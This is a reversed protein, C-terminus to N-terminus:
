TTLSSTTVAPSSKIKEIIVEEGLGARSLKLVEDNTMSGVSPSPLRVTTPILGNDPEQPKLPAVPVVPRMTSESLNKPEPLAYHQSVIFCLFERGDALHIGSTGNSSLGFQVASGAQAPNVPIAKLGFVGETFTPLRYPRVVYITTRTRLTVEWYNQMSQQVPTCSSSTSGNANIQGGCNFQPASAISKSQVALITADHWETTVAPKRGALAYAVLLLFSLALKRLSCGM